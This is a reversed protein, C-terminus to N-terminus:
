IDTEYEEGHLVKWSKTNTMEIKRLLQKELDEESLKSFSYTCLVNPVLTKHIKTLRDGEIYYVYNSKLPIHVHKM